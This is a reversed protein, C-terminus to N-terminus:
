NGGQAAEVGQVVRLFMEFQKREVDSLGEDLNKSHIETKDQFKAIHVTFNKVSGGGSINEMTSDLSKDDSNKPPIPPATSDSGNSFPNTTLGYKMMYAAQRKIGPSTGRVDIKAQQKMFQMEQFIQHSGIGANDYANLLEVQNRANDKGTRFDSLVQNKWYKVGEEPNEKQQKHLFYNDFKANLRDVLGVFAPAIAKGLNDKFVEWNNSLKQLDNLGNETSDLARKLEGASNATENMMKGLGKTDSLLVNLADRAQNDKVIESMILTGQKDSKGELRQELQQVIDLLQNRNGNKDFVKVNNKTLDNLVEKKSLASYLNTMLTQSMEASRGKTTLYSFAGATEQYKYGISNGQAIPAPLYNAFDKFEGVGLRKAAFLVDMVEKSSHNKAGVANMIGVTSSAVDNVDAFGAQAGKLSTKLIDTSLRVNNTASLIKEYAAPVANIDTSSGRGAEMIEGRLNQLEPKNLQATANIKAFQQDFGLNTKTSSYAFSGAALAAVGGMVYPNAGFSMAGGIGPLASISERFRVGSGGGRSHNQIKNIQNQTTELERNLRKIESSDISINRKKTLDDLKNSLEDVSSGFKKTKLSAKDLSDQILKIKKYGTDFSTNVRGMNQAVNDKMKLFWESTYVSM